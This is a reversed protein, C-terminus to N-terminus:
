PRFNAMKNSLFRIPIPLIQPIKPMNPLAIPFKERNGNEVKEVFEV